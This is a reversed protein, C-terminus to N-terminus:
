LTVTVSSPNLAASNVSTSTATPWSYESVAFSEIPARRLDHGDVAPEDSTEVVVGSTLAVTSWRCTSSMGSALRSTVFRILSCAPTAPMEFRALVTILPPADSM